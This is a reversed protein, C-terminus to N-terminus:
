MSVRWLRRPQRMGSTRPMWSDELTLQERLKKNHQGVVCVFQETVLKRRFLSKGRRSLHGVAFPLEGRVLTAEVEAVPLDVTHIGISPAERATRRLVSGIMLMQGVDAVNIHFLRGSSAPTFAVEPQLGDVFAELGRSVALAMRNAYPTAVAGRQTRVFLGDGCHTRLRALANSVASPTMDLQRAAATVQGFHHVAAFVKLLNLDLDPLTVHGQM